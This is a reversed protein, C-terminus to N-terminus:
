RLKSIKLFRESDLRFQTTNQEIFVAKPDACKTVLAGAGIVTEEGLDVEHGIVAGLGVFSREGLHASGGFVAQGAIWAHDDITTHHGVLVGSWVVVNNGLRVGPEIVAHDLIICNDGMELWDGVGARPSVYSVLRYGKAKAALYKERRLANLEHYGVAVIMDFQAPPFREALEEFAVVPKGSFTRSEPLHAADTTFAVVDHTGAHAIHRHVVDAVKGAGFIVIQSV